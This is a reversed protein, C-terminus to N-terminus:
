QYRSFIYQQIQYFDKLKSEYRKAKEDEVRKKEEWLSLCAECFGHGCPLETFRKIILHCFICEYLPLLEGVTKFDYGGNGYVASPNVM